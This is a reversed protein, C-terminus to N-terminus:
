ICIIREPFCPVNIEFAESVFPVLIDEESISLVDCNVENEKGYHVPYPWLPAHKQVLDEYRLDSSREM